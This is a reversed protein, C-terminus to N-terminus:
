DNGFVGDQCKQCLGSIHYERWSIENRFDERGRIEKRCSPCKHLKVMEIEKEFGYQKMITENM